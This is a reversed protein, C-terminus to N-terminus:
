PSGSEESVVLHPNYRKRVERMLQECTFPKYLISDIGSEVMRKRSGFDACGTTCLIQLSRVEPIPHQRIRMALEDGCMGPMELDSILM